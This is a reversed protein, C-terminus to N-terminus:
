RPFAGAQRLGGVVTALVELASRTTDEDGITIRLCGAMGGLDSLDRLRYGARSLGEAVHGAECRSGVRFALFNGGSPLPNFRLRRLERDAVERAHRVENWIECLDSHQQSMAAAVLVSPGSVTQELHSSAFTAIRAESGAVVAARAGALGHSKSLSQVVMVSESRRRLHGDLPGDFAQYCSDIVLLHGREQCLSALLDLDGPPIAWGLPGNPVSVAFLWDRGQEAAALLRATQLGEGRDSGAASVRRVALGVRDAAEEWAPYNPHQLVLLAGDGAARAYDWCIMRLAADSGPSLVFERSDLGLSSGIAGIAAATVPYRSLAPPQVASLARVLLCDLAPHVLENSSLNIRADALRRKIGPIASPSSAAGTM